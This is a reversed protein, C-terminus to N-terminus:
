SNGLCYAFTWCKMNKSLHKIGASLLNAVIVHKYSLEPLNMESHFFSVELGIESRDGVGLGPDLSQLFSKVNNSFLFVGFNEQSVPICSRLRSNRLLSEGRTQSLNPSM